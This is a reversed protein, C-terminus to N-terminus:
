LTSGPKVLKIIQFFRKYKKVGEKTYGDSKRIPKMDYNYTRLIQRILNLLPFRQKDTANSHLATLASSSLLKKLELIKPKMQEYKQNNIFVERPIIQGNLDKVNIGVDSLITITLDNLEMSYRFKEEKPKQIDM